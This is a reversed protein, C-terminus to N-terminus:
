FANFINTVGVLELIVLVVFVVGIVGIVGAGAPGQEIQLSLQALEADSLAAVRAKADEPAVGFDILQQQVDARELFADVTARQEARQQADAWEASGIMGATAAGPLSLSLMAISVLSAIWQRLNRM